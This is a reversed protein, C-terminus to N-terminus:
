KLDFTLGARLQFQLKSDWTNLYASRNFPVSLSPALYFRVGPFLRIDTGAMLNGSFLIPDPLAEGGSVFISKAAHLGAGLYFRWHQDPNFYYLLEVPIGLYHLTLQTTQGMINTKDQGYGGRQMYDLGATLALKRSLPISLSVGVSIPLIPKEPRSVINTGADNIIGSHMGSDNYALGKGSTSIGATAANLRLSMRGAQRHPREPNETWDIQALTPETEVTRDDPTKAEDPVTNPSTDSPLQDPATEQDSPTEPIPDGIPDPIVPPTPPVTPAPTVKRSSIGPRAPSSVFPEPSSPENPQAALNGAQVAPTDPQVAPTITQQALRDPNPSAPRLLLVAAVVAAAVGALAYPWWGMPRAAPQSMEQGRPVLGGAFAAIDESELPLSADQLREQLVRTWDKDKM